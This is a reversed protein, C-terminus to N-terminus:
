TPCAAYGDHISAMFIYIDEEDKDILVLKDYSKVVTMRRDKCNNNM